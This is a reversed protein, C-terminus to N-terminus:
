EGKQSDGQIDKEADPDTGGDERRDSVTKDTQGIADKLIDLAKNVEPDNLNEIKQTPKGDVRDIMDRIMQTDGEQIAKDLIQQILLQLYSSKKGEPVESLRRKLETVISIGAGKPRGERNIRPDGKEFPKGGRNKETKDTM